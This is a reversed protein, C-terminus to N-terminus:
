CTWITRTTKKTKTTACNWRCNRIFASKIHRSFLPKRNFLPECIDFLEDSKQRPDKSKTIERQFNEELINKLYEIVNQTIIQKIKSNYIYKKSIIQLFKRFTKNEYSSQSHSWNGQKEFKLAEKEMDSNFNQQDLGKLFIFLM